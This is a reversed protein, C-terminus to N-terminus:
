FDLKQITQELLGILSKENSDRISKENEIENNMRKIIGRIMEALSSETNERSFKEENIINYLKTFGEDIMRSLNMDEKEREEKENKIDSIIKPVENGFYDEFNKLSENRNKNEKKLEGKLVKVNYDIENMLREEMNKRENEENFLKTILRKELNNLYEKREQYVLEYNKREEEIEKILNSLDIKVRSFEKNIEEQSEFNKQNLDILREEINNYNNKNSSNNNSDTKINYQINSLKENIKNIRDLNPIYGQMYPSSINNKYSSM